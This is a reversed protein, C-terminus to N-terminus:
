FCQQALAFVLLSPEKRSTCLSFVGFRHKGTSASFVLLSTTTGVHCFRM